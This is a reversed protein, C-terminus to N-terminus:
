ESSHKENETITSNVKHQCYCDKFECEKHKAIAVDALGIKNANGGDTCSKCIM